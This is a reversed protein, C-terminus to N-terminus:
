GETSEDNEDDDQEEKKRGKDADKTIFIAREKRLVGILAEYDADTITKPHRDLFVDISPEKIAEALIEAGQKPSEGGSEAEPVAIATGDQVAAPVETVKADNRRRTSVM